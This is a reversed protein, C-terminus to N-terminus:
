TLCSTQLKERRGKRRTQYRPSQSHEVGGVAWAEQERCSHRARVIDRGCCFVVKDKTTVSSRELSFQKRCTYVIMTAWSKLLPNYEFDGDRCIHGAWQQEKGRITSQVSPLDDLVASPTVLSQVVLPCPKALDHHSEQMQEQSLIGPYLTSWDTTLECAGEGLWRAQIGSVTVNVLWGCSYLGVYVSVYICV